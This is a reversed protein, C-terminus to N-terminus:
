QKQLLFEMVREESYYITNSIHFGVHGGYRSTELFINKSQSALEHPYCSPSLFSDNSANLILVPTKITPLFQLSSSQEYYDLADKFGHAPATYITDFDLLTHIKNYTAINMKQPFLPMKRKYKKRLDRVFTNNYIWNEPKNLADLSGKLHLPSSVAVGKKLEKPLSDREGLYKLVLNGGLSFGILSIDNYINKQLIHAIVEELDNTRGSNYSLYLLNDEGSCGRHNMAAVDWGNEALIKAQGKIYVRQANGELGHLLIVVKKTKEASFSWDIDLFDGDELLFREREQKLKPIPRLKASYITSFHGNKFLFKPHYNSKVLPM